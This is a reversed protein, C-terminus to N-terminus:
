TGCMVLQFYILLRVRLEDNGIFPPSSYSTLNLAVYNRLHSLRRAFHTVQMAGTTVSPRRPCSQALASRANRM